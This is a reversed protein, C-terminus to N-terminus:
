HSVFTSVTWMKRLTKNMKEETQTHLQDVSGSFRQMELVAIKQKCYEVESDKLYKFQPGIDPREGNASLTSVFYTSHKFTPNM